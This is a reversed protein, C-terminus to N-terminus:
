SRPEAFREGLAKLVLFCEGVAMKFRTELKPHARLDTPLDEKTYIARLLAAATEAYEVMDAPYAPKQRRPPPAETPARALDRSSTVVPASSTISTVIMPDDELDVSRIPSTSTTGIQLRHGIWESPPVDFLSQSGVLPASDEANIGTGHSMGRLVACRRRQANGAFVGLTYRSSATHIRYVTWGAGSMAFIVTREEAM